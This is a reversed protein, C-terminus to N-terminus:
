AARPPSLGSYLGSFIWPSGAPSLYHLPGAIGTSFLPPNDNESLVDSLRILKATEDSLVARKKLLIVGSATKQAGANNWDFLNSCILDYLYIHFDRSYDAPSEAEGCGRLSARKDIFSCIPSAAYVSFYLLFVFSVIRKRDFFSKM